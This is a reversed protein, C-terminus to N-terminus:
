EHKANINNRLRLEEKDFFESQNSLIENTLITDKQIVDLTYYVKSTM